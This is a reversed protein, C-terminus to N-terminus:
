SGVTQRLAKGYMPISCFVDGVQGFPDTFIRVQHVLFPFRKGLLFVENILWWLIQDPVVKQILDLSPRLHLQLLRM